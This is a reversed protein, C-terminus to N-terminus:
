SHSDPLDPSSDWEELARLLLRKSEDEGKSNDVVKWGGRRALMLVKQRVHELSAVDEFMEKNHQRETIRQHAIAPDVDVLLLRRPIPLLKTFFDYGLPALNAPLYATAMVYRVYVITQHTRRDRPMRRLSDLVDLIFFITAVLRMIKGEGELARRAGRGIWTASPHVRVLVREGEAEYKEKVWHALTSKGSGDIGDM